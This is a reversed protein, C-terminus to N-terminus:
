PQPLLEGNLSIPKQDAADLFAETIAGDKDFREVAYATFATHAVNVSGLSVFEGPDVAGKVKPSKTLYLLLSKHENISTGSGEFTQWSGQKNADSGPIAAGVGRILKFGTLGENTKPVFYSITIRFSGKEALNPLCYGLSVYPNKPNDTFKFRAGVQGEDEKLFDVEMDSVRIPDLERDDFVKNLAIYPDVTHGKSGIFEGLVTAKTDGKVDKGKTKESVNEVPSQPSIKGSADYRVLVELDDGARRIRMAVPTSGNISGRSLLTRAAQIEADNRLSTQYTRASKADELEGSKTLEIIQKELLDDMRDVIKILETGYEKQIGLNNKLYIKRASTLDSPAEKPLAPIPWIASTVLRVENKAMLADDLKGAKQYKGQLRTLATKYSNRLNVLKDTQAQDIKQRNIEFTLQLEALTLASLSGVLLIM